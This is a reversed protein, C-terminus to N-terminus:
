RTSRWARLANVACEGQALGTVTVIAEITMGDDYVAVPIELDILPTIGSSSRSSNLPSSTM